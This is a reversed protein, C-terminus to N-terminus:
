FQQMGVVDEAATLLFSPEVKAVAIRGILRELACTGVANAISVALWDETRARRLLGEARAQPRKMRM